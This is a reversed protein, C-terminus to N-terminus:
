LHSRADFFGDIVTQVTQGEGIDNILIAKLTDCAVHMIVSQLYCAPIVTEMTVQSEPIELAKATHKIVADRVSMPM